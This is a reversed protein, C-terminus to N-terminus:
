LSDPVRSEFMFKQFDDVYMRYVMQQLRTNLKLQKLLTQKLVPDSKHLITPIDNPIRRETHKHMWNLVVDQDREAREFRGVFDIPIIDPHVLETQPRWHVDRRSLNDEFIDKNNPDNSKTRPAMLVDHVASVYAEFSPRTENAKRRQVVNNGFLAYMQRQYERSEIAVSFVKDVYASVLRSYPNRVFTFKLLSPDSLVDSIKSNAMHCLAHSKWADTGMDHLFHQLISDQKHAHKLVHTNNELYAIQWMMSTTGVKFVPIYVVHLKQSVVISSYAPGYSRLKRVDVINGPPWRPSLKTKLRISNLLGAHAHWEQLKPPFVYDADQTGFASEGPDGEKSSASRTSSVRTHVSSPSRSQYAVSPAPSRDTLRLFPVFSFFATARNSAIFLTSATVTAIFLMLVIFVDLSWGQGSPRIPLSPPLLFPRPM